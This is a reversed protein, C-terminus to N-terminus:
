KNGERVLLELMAKIMSNKRLTTEKLIKQRKLPNYIKEKNLCCVCELRTANDFVVKYPLWDRDLPKEFHCKQCEDFTVGDFSSREGFM